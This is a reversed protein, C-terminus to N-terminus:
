KATEARELLEALELKDEESAGTQEAIEAARRVDGVADSGRGVAFLVEARVALAYILEPRDRRGRGDYIEIARASPALAEPARDVSVLMWALNSLALALDEDEPGLALELVRAAEQYALLARPLDGLEHWEGAINQLITGVTPHTEGLQEKALALGEAYTQQAAEHDGQESLLAGRHSLLTAVAHADVDDQAQLIAIADDVLPAAREWEGLEMLVWALNAMPYPNDPHDAGRAARYLALSQEFQAVALRRDGRTYLTAGLSNHAKARRVEDGEAPLLSLARELIRVAEDYRGQDTRLNGLCSLLSLELAPHDGLRAFAAEAHSAWKDAPDLEGRDAYIQILAASADLASEDDGEGQAAHFAREYHEASANQDGAELSSDGVALLGLVISRQYGIAEARQLATRALKVARGREGSWVLVHVRAIESEVEAVAAADSARPETMGATAIRDVSCRQLPPLPPPASSLDPKETVDLVATLADRRVHLCHMAADRHPADGDLRCLAHRQELWGAAYDNLVPDAASSLRERWAEATAEGQALCDAGSSSSTALLVAGGIGGLMAAGIWWRKRGPRLAAELALLLADLSAHRDHQDHALGREIAARLSKRGVRRPLPAGPDRELPPVGTLAQALAACFAYQDATADAGDGAAQEPAMYGHTGAIAHVSVGSRVTAPAREAGTDAVKYSRLTAAESVSLGLVLGFDAVRPRGAADILVNGPKFDRHVLGARHAAALGRGAEIYKRVIETRSRGQQWEGLTGGSVFEMAIFLQGEHLGVEFVEVVNPHAVLAMAQAEARLVEVGTEEPARAHVKLAVPRDLRLDAARAVVGMGGRGVIAEVRYSGAVVTDAQLTLAPDRSLDPTAALRRLLGAFESDDDGLESEM